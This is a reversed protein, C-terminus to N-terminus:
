MITYFEKTLAIYDPTYDNRKEYQIILEKETFISKKREFQLLLRELPKDKKSRVATKQTCFLRYNVAKEEFILGEQYPLIVCFKGNEALLREVSQLLDDFSLEQTHRAQHRQQNDSKVGSLFYPPNSVILEYKETLPM